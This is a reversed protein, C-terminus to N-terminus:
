KSELLVEVKKRLEEARKQIDEDPVAMNSGANEVAGSGTNMNMVQTLSQFTKEQRTRADALDKQIAISAIKQAELDQTLAALREQSMKLEGEKRELMGAYEGLQKTLTNVLLELEKLRQERISEDGRALKESKFANLETEMEKIQEEKRVLTETLIRFNRDAFIDRVGEAKGTSRQQAVRLRDELLRREKELERVKEQLQKQTQSLIPATEARQYSASRLSMVEDKLSEIEASKEKLEDESNTLQSERLSVASNLDAVKRELDKLQEQQEFLKSSSNAIQKELNFREKEFSAATVQAGSGPKVAKSLMKSKEDLSRNLEEVNKELESIRQKYKRAADGADAERKSIDIAPGEKIKEELKILQKDKSTVNETLQSIRSSYKGDIGGLTERAKKLEGLTKTLESATNKLRNQLILNTNEASWKDKATLALTDKAEKLAAQAALLETQFNQTKALVLASEKEALLSRLNKADQSLRGGEKSLLSVKRSLEDKEKENYINVVVAAMTVSIVFAVILFVRNKLVDAIQSM